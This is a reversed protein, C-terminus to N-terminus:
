VTDLVNGGSQDAVWCWNWGSSLQTYGFHWSTYSSWGLTMEYFLNNIVSTGLVTGSTTYYTRTNVAKLFKKTTISHSTGSTYCGNPIASVICTETGSEILGATKTLTVNQSSMSPTISKPSITASGSSPVPKTYVVLIDDKCIMGSSNLTAKGSNSLSAIESDNYKVTVDAM